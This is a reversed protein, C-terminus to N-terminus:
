YGHNRLFSEYEPLYDLICNNRNSELLKLFKVLDYACDSHDPENALYYRYSRLDHLINQRTWDPHRANINCQDNEIKHDELWQDILELALDRMDRPLVGVRMHEPWFLFNCSEVSIGHDWAWDYVTLLKYMSLVTPTVRLITYWNENQSLRYWREACDTIQDIQSPWRLYDNLPDFCEVSLNVHVHRFQRIKAIVQEPWVTLNTTFGISVRDHSKQHILQDLMTEFGPTILTEGGLFHIYQPQTQTSIMDAVERIKDNDGWDSQPITKILGLKHWETALRSSNWPTCFVCASNCHNGLDIQWDVPAMEVETQGSQFVPLWASSLMSKQWHETDVGIKLLQRQRGSIKGHEEMHYCTSCGSPRHGSLMKTRIDSMGTRFYEAVSTHKINPTEPDHAWRCYKFDGNQAIQM